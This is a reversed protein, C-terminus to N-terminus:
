RKSNRKRRSICLASVAFLLGAFTPEPVAVVGFIVSDPATGLGFAVSQVDDASYSTVGDFGFTIKDKVLIKNNLNNTTINGTYIAYDIGGVIQGNFGNSGLGSNGVTGVGFRTFPNLSPNFSDKFQWKDSRAATAVLNANPTQLVEPGNKSTLYTDGVATYNTLVPYADASNKIEFYMSGLLEDPNMIAETSLNEVTVTLHNGVFSFTSRFHVDVGKASTGIADYVVLDGFLNTAPALLAFLMVIFASNKM